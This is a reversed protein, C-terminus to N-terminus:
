CPSLAGLDKPNARCLARQSPTPMADCVALQEETVGPLLGTLETFGAYTNVQDSVKSRNEQRQQHANRSNTIGSRM